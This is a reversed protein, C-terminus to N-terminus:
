NGHHAIGVGGRGAPRVGLIHSLLSRLAEKRNGRWLVFHAMRPVGPRPAAQAMARGQRRATRARTQARRGASRKADRVRGFLSVSQTARRRLVAGRGAVGGMQQRGPGGQQAPPHHARPRLDHVARGARAGGGM